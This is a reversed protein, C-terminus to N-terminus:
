SWEGLLVLIPASGPTSPGCNGALTGVVPAPLPCSLSLQEPDVTPWFSALPERGGVEDEGSGDSHQKGAPFRYPHSRFGIEWTGSGM